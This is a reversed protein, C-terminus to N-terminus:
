FSLGETLVSVDLYLILVNFEPEAKPVAHSQAHLESTIM